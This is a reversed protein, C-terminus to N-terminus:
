RAATGPRSLYVSVDGSAYNGTVLDLRGDRDLDALTVYSPSQGSGTVAGRAEVFGGRGDGLLIVPDGGMAAGLAADLDGDGDIDGLDIGWVATTLRVPSGEAFVFKGAAGGLLVDVMGVDDHTALVDAYGDGNVDGAATYGPREGVPYRADAASVFGGRGDGWLIGIKGAALLPAAIDAFGDGNLDRVSIGDYPHRGTAFPSGPAPAFGGRGDGLLVPIANDNASTTIVDLHGDGNVDALAIDHTHPRSGSGSAVPTGPRFGGRGDGLLVTVDYTDHEAAVVDVAGDGNLDGLALKRVSPGVKIPAGPGARFNGKGDGLLVAVHGSRPDPSSGCCTGCAVVIDPNGDRNCDAVAPRGTMPGVDFPAGPAAVFSMAASGHGCEPGGGAGAPSASILVLCPFALLRLNSM